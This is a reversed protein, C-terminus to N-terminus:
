KGLRLGEYALIGAVLLAVISIWGPVVWGGIQAAWGFVLRLLHLVAIAGFISGAVLCFTKQSM